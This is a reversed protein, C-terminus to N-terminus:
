IVEQQIIAKGSVTFATKADNYMINTLGYKALTENVIQFAEDTPYVITEGSYIADKVFKDDKVSYKFTFTFKVNDKDSTSDKEPVIFLVSTKFAKNFDNMIETLISHSEPVAESFRSKYKM